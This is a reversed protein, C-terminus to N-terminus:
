EQAFMRSLLLQKLHPCQSIVAAICSMGVDGIFNDAGFSLLNALCVILSVALVSFVLASSYLFLYFLHLVRRRLL